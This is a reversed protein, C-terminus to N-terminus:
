LDRMDRKSIFIPERPKGSKNKSMFEFTVVSNLVPYDTNEKPTKQISGNKGFRYQKRFEKTLKGSLNFELKKDTLLCVRFTGLMRKFKGKGENFGIVIAEETLIPKWKLMWKSRGNVYPSNPERFVIGEGGICIIGKFNSHAHKFNKVKSQKVIKLIANEKIQHTLYHLRNSFPGKIKPADFVEFTIKKWESELPHKKRVTSVTKPFQNRGIFLEGDLVCQTPLAQTFWTPASIPKGSRFFLGKKPIWIARVGDRKESMFWGTPDVRYKTPVDSFVWKGKVKKGSSGKLTVKQNKQGGYFKEALM